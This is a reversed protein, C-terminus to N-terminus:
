RILRVFQAPHLFLISRQSGHGHIDERQGAFQALAGDFADQPHTVDCKAKPCDEDASWNAAALGLRLM